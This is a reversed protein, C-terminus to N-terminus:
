KDHLPKPKTEVEKLIDIAIELLKIATKRDRDSQPPQNPWVVRGAKDKEQYFNKPNKDSDEIM